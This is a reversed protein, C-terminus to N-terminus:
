ASLKEQEYKEMRQKEKFCKYCLPYEFKGEKWVRAKVPMIPKQCLTCIM